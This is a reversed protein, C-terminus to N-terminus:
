HYDVIEVDVAQDNVWRFCVRYKEYIRISHQGKRDAKLPELRNGPPLALDNLVTAANLQDLKRRALSVLSASIVRRAASTNRGYFLDETARSRFEM